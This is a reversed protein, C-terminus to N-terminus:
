VITLLLLEVEADDREIDLRRQREILAVTELRGILRQLLDLRSFVPTWDITKAKFSVVPALTETFAEVLAEEDGGLARRYERALTDRLEKQFKRQEKRSLERADEIRELQERLKLVWGGGGGPPVIDPEPPPPPPVVGGNPGWYQGSYYSKGWYAGGFM